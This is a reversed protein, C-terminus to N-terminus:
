CPAIGIQSLHSVQSAFRQDGDPTHAHSVDIYRAILLFRRMRRMHRLRTM